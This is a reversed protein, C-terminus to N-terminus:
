RGEMQQDDAVEGKRGAAAPQALAEAYIEV